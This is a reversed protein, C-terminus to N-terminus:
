PESDPPLVLEVPALAGPWPSRRFAYLSFSRASDRDIMMAIPAIRSSEPIPTIHPRIGAEGAVALALAKRKRWFLAQAFGPEGRLARAGADVARSSDPQVTMLHFATLTSLPDLLAARELAGVAWPAGVQAGLFGAELWLPALGTALEAARLAEAADAERTTLDAALWAARARYLPFDPDLEVAARIQALALAPDREIRARDYLRHAAMSPLLLTIAWALYAGVALRAAFKGKQRDEPTQSLCAGLVLGAAVSLAPVAVPAAGFSFILGGVLGIM